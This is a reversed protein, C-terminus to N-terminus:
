ISKQLIRTRGALHVQPETVDQATCFPQAGGCINSNDVFIHKGM